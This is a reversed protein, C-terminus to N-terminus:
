LTSATFISMSAVGGTTCYFEWYYSDNPYAHTNNYYQNSTTIFAGTPLNLISIGTSIDVLIFVGKVTTGSLLVSITVPGSLKIQNNAARLVYVNTAVLTTSPLEWSEGDNAQYSTDISRTQVRNTGIVVVPYTNTVNLYYGRNALRVAPPTVIFQFGLGDSPTIETGNVEGADEAVTLTIDYFVWRINNLGFAVTAIIIQSYEHVDYFAGGVTTPSLIDEVLVTRVGTALLATATAIAVGEPNNFANLADTVTLNVPATALNSLVAYLPGGTAAFSANPPIAIGGGPQLSPNDGVYVTNTQDGNIVQTGVPLAQGLSVPSTSSTVPITQFM